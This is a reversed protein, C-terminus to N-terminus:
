GPIAAEGAEMWDYMGKSLLLLGLQLVLGWVSMLRWGFLGCLWTHLSTLRGFNYFSGLLTIHMGSLAHLPFENIIVGFVYFRWSDLLGTLFLLLGVQWPDLPFLALTYAHLLLTLLSSLLLVPFHGGLSATCTRFRLTLCLIPLTVLNSLSNLTDRSFGARVLEYDYLSNFFNCGQSFLLAFVCFRFHRSEPRLFVGYQRVIQWLGLGSDRRESALERERFRLHVVALPGLLLGGFGLLVTSPLALPAGLGVKRAFEQSSLKLLALGGVLVGLVEAFSQITSAEQASAAEKVVLAHLAINQLVLGTTLALSLLAFLPAQAPATCACSALLLLGTLLQSAVM